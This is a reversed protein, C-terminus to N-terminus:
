VREEGEREQGSEKERTSETILARLIMKVVPYVEEGIPLIIDVDDSQAVSLLTSVLVKRLHRNKQFYQKELNCWTIALHCM